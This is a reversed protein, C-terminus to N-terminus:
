CKYDIPTGLIIIRELYQIKAYIIFEWIYHTGVNKARVKLFFVKM